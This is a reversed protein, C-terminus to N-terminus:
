VCRSTYLLCSVSTVTIDFTESAGKTPRNVTMTLEKPIYNYDEPLKLVEDISPTVLEFKPNIMFDWDSSNQRFKKATSPAAVYQSYERDFFIKRNTNDGDLDSSCHGASMMYIKDPFNEDPMISFNQCIIYAFGNTSFTSLSLGIILLIKKM